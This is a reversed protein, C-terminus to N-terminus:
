GAHQVESGNAHAGPLYRLISGTQSRTANDALPRRFDLRGLIALSATIIVIVSSRRRM